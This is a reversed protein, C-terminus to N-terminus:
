GILRLCTDRVQTPDVNPNEKKAQGILAGIAKQNGGKVDEVIKPNKALLAECLAVLASEDVQAIGLEAVAADVSLKREVMLDFVERARPGPVRGSRIQGILAALAHADVPFGGIDGPADKLIRRVDQTVWNAAAKADGSERAAVAFYDVVPRGQNVLVDADYKSLGHDRQLRRRLAAPLEGLASRAAAVDEATATVPLLDPDPFYRYDSSEEKSRQPRTIGAADDWGRTQKPVDGL